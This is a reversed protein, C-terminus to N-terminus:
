QSLSVTSTWQAKFASQSRDKVKNVISRKGILNTINCFNSCDYDNLTSKVRIVWHKCSRCSKDCCYLFERKNIRENEMNVCRTWNYAICAHQKAIAPEWGMDGNVAANPIYKGTGLYFRM